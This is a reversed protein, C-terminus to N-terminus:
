SQCNGFSYHCCTYNRDIIMALCAAGTGAPGGAWNGSTGRRSAEAHSGLKVRFFCRRKERGSSNKKKKVQSTLKEKKVKVSSLLRM